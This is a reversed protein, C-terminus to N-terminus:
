RSGCSTLWTLSKTIMPPEDPRPLVVGAASNLTAASGSAAAMTKWAPQVTVM